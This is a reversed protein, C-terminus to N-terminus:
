KIKKKEEALYAELKKLKEKHREKNLNLVVKGSSLFGDKQLRLVISKKMYEPITEGTKREAERLAEPVGTANMFRLGYQTTEAERWRKEKQKREEEKM